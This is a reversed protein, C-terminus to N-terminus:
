AFLSSINRRNLLVIVKGDTRSDRTKSKQKIKQLYGQKERIRRHTRHAKSKGGAMKFFWENGTRKMGLGVCGVLFGGLAATDCHNPHGRTKPIGMGLDRTFHTDGM